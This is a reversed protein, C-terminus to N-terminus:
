ALPWNSNKIYSLIKVEFEKENLSSLFTNNNMSLELGIEEGHAAVIEDMAAKKLIHLTPYPSRNVYNGRANKAEGEFRFEPHFVIMQVEELHGRVELEMEVLSSLNLFPIFSDKCRPLTILQNEIEGSKFSPIASEIEALILNLSPLHQDEELIDIRWAGRNWSKKAFPCLNLGIVVEEVWKKTNQFVVDLLSSDM